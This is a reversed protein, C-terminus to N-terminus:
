YSAVIRVRFMGFSTTWRSSAQACVHVRDILRADFPCRTEEEHWACSSPHAAVRSQRAIQPGGALEIEFLQLTCQRPSQFNM